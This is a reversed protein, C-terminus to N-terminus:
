NSATEPTLVKELAIELKEQLGVWTERVTGQSDILFLAPITVTDGNTVYKKAVSSYTDALVPFPLPNIRLFEELKNQGEDKELLAVLLVQITDSHKKSFEVVHPLEEKCSKCDTSFFDLLVYKHIAPGKNRSSTFDSLRLLEGNRDRLGFDPAKDGAKLKLNKSTPGAASTAPVWVCVLLGLLLGQLARM